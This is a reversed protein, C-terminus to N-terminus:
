RYNPKRKRVLIIATILGLFAINLTNFPVFSDVNPSNSIKLSGGFVVDEGLTDSFVEIRLSYSGDELSTTDWEYSAVNLDSVLPEWITNGDVIGKFYHLNYSVEHEWSDFVPTWSITITGKLVDDVEPTLFTLTSLEHPVNAIIYDSESDQMITFGVEDEAIVRILTNSGHPIISTHFSYTFISLDSAVLQWTQGENISYLVSYDVPHNVSDDIESWSITIMGSTIGDTSTTTQIDLTLGFMHNPNVQPSNDQNTSFYLSYPGIGSWDSWFNFSFENNGPSDAGQGGGANNDKFDNLTILNWSGSVEIGLLDNDYIVNKSVNNNDSGSAVAIGVHQNNHIENLSITNNESNDLFMGRDSGFAITNNLITNNNSGSLFIGVFNGIIMNDSITGNQVDSLFIGEDTLRHGNLINNKIIFYDTTSSIEILRGSSAFINLGEIRYPDGITGSGPLGLSLFDNNNFIHISDTTIEGNSWQAIRAYNGIQAKLIDFTSDLLFGEQDYKVHNLGGDFNTNALQKIIDPGATSDAALVALSGVWIADYTSASFPGPQVLYETEYAQRFANVSLSDISGHTTATVNQMAAPTQPSENYILDTSIGDSGIIPINLNQNAMEVILDSGDPKFSVLFVVDPNASKVQTVITAPNYNTPDYIVETLVQGSNPNSTFASTLTENMISWDNRVIIAATTYGRSKAIDSMASSQHDDTPVTSWLYGEDGVVAHDNLTHLKPHTSAYSILPVQSNNAVAAASMTQDSGAAGAVFVCEDNVAQTMSTAAVAPDFQTDYFNINWTFTPYQNNLEKIALNAGNEISPSLFSLAGTLPSLVCTELTSPLTNPTINNSVDGLNGSSVTSTLFVIIIMMSVINKNNLKIM